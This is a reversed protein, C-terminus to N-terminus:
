YNLLEAPFLMNLRLDDHSRDFVGHHDRRPLVILGLFVEAGLEIRFGALDVHIRDAGNHVFNGIGFIFHSEGLSAFDIRMELKAALQQNGFGGANEAADGRLRGLLHDHLFDALGLAIGDKVFIVSASALKHIADHLSEFAGIHDDVHTAGFGSQGLALLRAQFGVIKAVTKADDDFGNIAGGLPRM